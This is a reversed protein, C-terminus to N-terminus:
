GCVSALAALRDDLEELCGEPAVGAADYPAVRDRSLQLLKRISKVGVVSAAFLDAEVEESLLRGDATELHGAEVHGAEHAVAAKILKTPLALMADNAAMVIHDHSSIGLLMMPVDPPAEPYTFRYVTFQEGGFVFIHKDNPDCGRPLREGM